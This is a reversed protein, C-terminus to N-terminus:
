LFNSSSNSWTINSRAFIVYQAFPENPTSNLSSCLLRPRRHVYDPRDYALPVPATGVFEELDHRDIMLVLRDFNLVEVAGNRFHIEITPILM